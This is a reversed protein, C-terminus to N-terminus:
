FNTTAMVYGFSANTEAAGTINAKGYDGASFMSYGAQWTVAKVKNCTITLDIESGIDTSTGTTGYAGTAATLDSKRYASTASDTRDFKFYDLQVTMHEMFKHNVGAHIGNVNRRGIWDGYGLFKHATPYLHDYNKNATFYEVYLRTDAIKFGVEATTQDADKIDGNVAQFNGYVKGSQTAYEVRYDVMGTAGKVRLGATGRDETKDTGTGSPTNVQRILYYADVEAIAASPKAGFYLGYFNTDATATPGTTATSTENIKNYFVDLWIMDNAVWHARLGDFSRGVLSWGIPGIVLEDGYKMEYRGIQYSIKDTPMFTTYAQHLNLASDTLTGSTSATTGGMIKFFKPQFFVSVKPDPTWKMSVETAMSMIDATAAAGVTNQEGRFRAKGDVTMDGASATSVLGVAALAVALFRFHKMM